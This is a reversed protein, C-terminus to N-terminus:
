PFEVAIRDGSFIARSYYSRAFKPLLPGLLMEIYFDFGGSALWVEVGKAAAAELLQPLGPRMRGAEGRLFEAAQERTARALAWMRRQAEPLSIEHRVWQDDIDRWESPAFKECVADGVDAMTLTGDFDLILTRLMEGLYTHVAVGWVASIEVGTLAWP